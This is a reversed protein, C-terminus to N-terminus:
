RPILYKTFFEEIRKTTPELWPPNNFFAHDAGPATFLEAPVGAGKLKEMMDISNGYPVTRDADGHLFLFAASDKTVYTLPSSSAWFGRNEAYTVGLYRALSGRIDESSSKGISVLDVVPNFAAVAKVVHRPMTGLMGVLHGGSSGGAAGIRGPDINYDAAHDQVWLTAAISDDLAAPYKAESPLSYEICVGAFGRSALYTAQRAFATKNHRTGGHIYIIVPVASKRIKPLYLDLRLERNDRVRYVLDKIEVLQSLGPQNDPVQARAATAFVLLAVTRMLASILVLCVAGSDV